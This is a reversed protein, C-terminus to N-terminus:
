LSKSHRCYFSKDCMETRNYQSIYNIYQEIILFYCSQMNILINVSNRDERAIEM